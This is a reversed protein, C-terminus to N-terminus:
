GRSCSSAGAPGGPRRLTSELGDPSGIARIESTPGLATDGIEIVGTGLVAVSRATIRIDDVAIADPGAGRLEYILDNIPTADFPGAM